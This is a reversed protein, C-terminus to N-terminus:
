FSKKLTLSSTNYFRHFQVKMKILRKGQLATPTTCQWSQPAAYICDVIQYIFAHKSKVTWTVKNEEIGRKNKREERQVHMMWGTKTRRSTREEGERWVTLKPKIAVGANVGLQRSCQLTCSSRGSKTTRYSSSKQPWRWVQLNRAM